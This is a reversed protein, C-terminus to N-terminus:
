EVVIMKKTSVSEGAKLSYFYVASPNSKRGWRVQHIGPQQTENVVTEVLRGTIDYIALTVETAQPLSYSIQTSRHFPNQTNQLLRVDSVAPGERSSSESIGTLGDQDTKILYVDGNGAGFSRTGGVVVYGGDSTQQVSFGHDWYIGGYTREWLLNGGSDTKVLFADSSGAGFSETYGAIVYGTDSTQQVSLAGDHSNGGYTKEWLVNGLSDIKVLYFDLFDGLSLITAGAIVYGGDITQQVCWGGNRLSDGYTRAWITDGLSDTKILYIDEM